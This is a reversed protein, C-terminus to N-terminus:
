KKEAFRKDKAWGLCIQKVLQADGNLTKDLDSLVFAFSKETFPNCDSNELLLYTISLKILLAKVKGIGMGSNFDNLFKILDKGMALPLKSQLYTNYKEQNFVLKGNKLEFGGLQSEKINLKEFEEKSGKFLIEESIDSQYEGAKQTGNKNNFIYYAMKNEGKDLSRYM